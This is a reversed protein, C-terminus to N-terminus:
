WSILNYQIGVGIYPAPRFAQEAVNIAVGYGAQVGISWRTKVKVKQVSQEIITRSDQFVEIRDLSPQYGSVEARYTSDEYVRTERPLRLYLTDNVRTTDHVAVRLTDRVRTRIYIPREVVHTDRMVITDHQTTVLREAKPAPATWRGLCFAIVLALTAYVAIRILNTNTM